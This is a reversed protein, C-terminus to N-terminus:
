QKGKRFEEVPIDRKVETLMTEVIWVIVCRAVEVMLERNREPLEDFEKRCRERTKWGFEPALREYEEHFKRALGEASLRDLGVMGEKGEGGIWARVVM